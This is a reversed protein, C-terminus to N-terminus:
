SARQKVAREIGKAQTRPTRIREAYCHGCIMDERGDQSSLRIFADSGCDVCTGPARREEM